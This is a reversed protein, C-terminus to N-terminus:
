QKKREQSAFTATSAGSESTLVAPSEATVTADKVGSYDILKGDMTVALAPKVVSSHKQIGRLPSGIGKTAPAIVSKYKKPKREGEGEEDCEMDEGQGTKTGERIVIKDQRLVAIKGESRLKKMEPVLAKRKLRVEQSYDEDINFDTEKLLSRKKLVEMKKRFSVFRVLIPRIKENKKGLRSVYDLCDISCDIKLISKLFDVIKEELKQFDEGEEERVNYFIINRKRRDQDYYTRMTENKTKEEKLEQQLKHIEGGHKTVSKEVSNVKEIVAGLEKQIGKQLEVKVSSVLDNKIETKVSNVLEQKVETKLDNAFNKMLLTM